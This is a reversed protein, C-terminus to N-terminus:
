ENEEEHMIPAISIDGYSLIQEEGKEGKVLLRGDELIKLAKALRKEGKEWIYIWQGPVMNRKIYDEFIHEEEVLLLLQTVISAALLNRIGGNRRVARAEEAGLLSGAKQNLSDPFGGEPEYVNLGIGVIVYEATGSEFDTIAESLIGCVKRTDLYLDNVWKIRLNKHCVEEAAKCVAVAAAATIRLNDQMEVPIRLLVSMYLGTKYPSYFDNGKRGRGKRQREALVVTGHPYDNELVMRKLLQNTSVVDEEVLVTIKKGVLEQIRKRSLLDGSSLLAYGRNTVSDIEYGEQRLNKVGKWIAARSCKLDAALKEGSLYVGPQQELCALLKEKVAM